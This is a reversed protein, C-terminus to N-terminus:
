HIPKSKSKKYIIIEKNSIKIIYNNNIWLDQTQKFGKEYLYKEIDEKRVFNNLEKIIM